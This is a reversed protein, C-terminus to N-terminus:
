LKIGKAELDDLLSHIAAVTEEEIEKMKRLYDDAGSADITKFKKGAFSEFLHKFAMKGYYGSVRVMTPKGTKPSVGLKEIWMCNADRKLVLSESLNIDNTDKSESVPTFKKEETKKNNNVPKRDYMSKEEKGSSKATTEKKKTETTANKAVAETETKKTRPM